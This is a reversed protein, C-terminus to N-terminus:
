SSWRRMSSSGSRRCTGHVRSVSAIPSRNGAVPHQHRDAAPFRVRLALRPVHPEHLAVDGVGEPRQAGRRARPGLSRTTAARAASSPAATGPPPAPTSARTVAWEATDTQRRLQRTPPTSSRRSAPPCSSSTGSPPASSTPPSPWARPPPATGRFGLGRGCWYWRRLADDRRRRPRSRRRPDRRHRRLPRPHRARGLSGGRPFAASPAWARVADLDDEDPMEDLVVVALHEAPTAVGRRVREAILARAAQVRTLFEPDHLQEPDFM